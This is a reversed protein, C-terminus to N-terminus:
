KSTTEIRSVCFHLSDNKLYEVNKAANYGLQRHTFFQPIGLGSVAVEGQMVRGAVEFPADYNYVIKDQFCGDEQRQNRLVVFITGRFPWRLHNDHEGKMLNVFLSVHTGEGDDAGNADVSLCMKYGGIHTYFPPSLWLEENMKHHSFNRMVFEVPPVFVYLKLLFSDSKLDEIEEQNTALQVKLQNIEREQVELRERLEQMETDRQHLEEKVQHHFEIPIHECLQLCKKSVLSLHIEVNSSIHTAMKNRPLRVSCGAYSFECALVHLHCEENLHHEMHQRLIDLRGCSNPCPLPYKECIKWHKASMDEFVGHYDCYKCVYPRRPCCKQHRELKDRHFHEGCFYPCETIMFKCNGTKPHTHKELSGLSGSWLCGKTKQPCTVSLENVKRGFYKDIMTTFSVTNCLPCPRNESEVQKICFHCFHNGCCSTLTPNKHVLLCISCVLDDHPKTVFPLDYGGSDSMAM